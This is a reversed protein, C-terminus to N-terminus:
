WEHHTATINPTIGFKVLYDHIKGCSTPAKDCGGSALNILEEYENPPLMFQGGAMAERRLFEEMSIVDIRKNFSGNEMDFFSALGRRVKSLLYMPQDPPLILTRGTVKALIFVIEMSMRINNFGGPDLSFALYKPKGTNSQFPTVFQYDRDGQPENWYALSWVDYDCPISARRAGM